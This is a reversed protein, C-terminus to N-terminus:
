ISAMEFIKKSIIIRLIKSFCFDGRLGDEYPIDTLTNLRISSSRQFPPWFGARSYFVDYVNEKLVFFHSNEWCSSGFRFFTKLFFEVWFVARLNRRNLFGM